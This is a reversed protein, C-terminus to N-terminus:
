RRRHKRVFEDADLQDVLQNLKTSDIGIRFGGNEGASGRGSGWALVAALLFGAYGDVAYHWGTVLSGLFTFFTLVFFLTAFRM